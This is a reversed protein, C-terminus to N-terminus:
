GLLVDVLQPAQGVRAGIDDQRQVQRVDVAHEIAHTVDQLAGSGTRRPLAAREHVIAAGHGFANQVAEHQPTDGPRHVGFGAPAASRRAAAVVLQDARQEKGRPPEIRGGQDRDAEAHDIPENRARHRARYPRQDM